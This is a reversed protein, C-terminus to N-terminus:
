PVMSQWTVDDGNPQAVSQLITRVGVSGAADTAAEFRRWGDVQVYDAIAAISQRYIL